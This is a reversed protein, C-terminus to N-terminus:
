EQDDVIPGPGPTGSQGETSRRRPARGAPQHPPPGAPNPDPIPRRVPTGVEVTVPEGYHLLDIRSGRPSEGDRVHYIAEDTRVTVWLRLGRWLLAFDLQAIQHPLRPAFSLVGNHDRM